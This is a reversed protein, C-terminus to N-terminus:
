LCGTRGGDVPLNIGNIYGASPGALFAIAAAIEEPRGFRGAPIENIMDHEVEEPSRAERDAKGRIIQELRETKTAGPLVNNVTIGYRAVEASLTKAWSAVSARITNSVGLGHLPQKVSTSIVNIIRGYASNRMGPILSQSLEHSALLHQTFAAIFADPTAAQIPGPPPGGSNNVLVHITGHASVWRGVAESLSAPHSADGVIIDHENPHAEKLQQVAHLLDSEQRAMLVVRCAQAALAHAAALGIGRSAGCVLATKDKLEDNKM